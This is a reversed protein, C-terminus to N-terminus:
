SNTLNPIFLAVITGACELYIFANATERRRFCIICLIAGTFLSIKIIIIMIPELAEIIGTNYETICKDDISAELDNESCMQKPGYM